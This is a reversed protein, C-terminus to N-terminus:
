PEDALRGRAAEVLMRLQQLEPNVYVMLGSGAVSAESAGGASEWAVFVPTEAAEQLQRLYWRGM